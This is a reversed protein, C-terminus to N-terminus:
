PSRRPDFRRWVQVPLLAPTARGASGAYRFDNEFQHCLLPTWDARGCPPGTLIVTTSAALEARWQRQFKALGRFGYPYFTAPVRAPLESLATGRPDVWPHCARGTANALEILVMQDSAVCQAGRVLATLRAVDVTAAQGQTWATGLQVVGGMAVIWVAVRALSKRVRTLRGLPELAPLALAVLVAAPMILYDGYHFFYPPSVAFMALGAALQALMLAGLPGRRLAVIGCWALALAALAAPVYPHAFLPRVAILQAWRAFTGRVGDAPRSLQTTIVDTVMRGPALVFFPLCVIAAAGAAAVSARAALARRRRVLLWGILVLAAVLGWAKVTVALGLAAGGILADRSKPSSRSLRDYAIVLFLDLWPELMATRGAVLAPAAVAYFAAAVLGRQPSSAKAVLRGLLLTTVGAAVITALRAAVLGSADGLLRGVVACPM